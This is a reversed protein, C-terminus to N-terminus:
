IAAAATFFLDLDAETMLSAAVAAEILPDHRYVETMTAWTLSAELAMESPLGAFIAAISAPPQLPLMAAEAETCM